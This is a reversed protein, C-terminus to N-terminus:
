KILSNPLAYTREIADAYMKMEDPSFYNDYLDEITTLLCCLKTLQRRYNSFKPEFHCGVSWFFTEMWRDRTFKLIGIYDLELWWRSIYKLDKHYTVQVMNFDIKAFELLLPEMGDQIM